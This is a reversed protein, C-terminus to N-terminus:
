KDVDLDLTWKKIMCDSSVSYLFIGSLQLCNVPNFTDYKFEDIERPDVELRSFINFVSTFVQM